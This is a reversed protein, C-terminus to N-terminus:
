GDQIPTQVFDIRIQNLMMPRRKTTDFLSPSIKFGEPLDLYEDQNVEGDPM